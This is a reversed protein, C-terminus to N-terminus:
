FRNNTKSKSPSRHKEGGGKQKGEITSNSISVICLSEKLHHLVLLKPSIITLDATEVEDGNNYYARDMM